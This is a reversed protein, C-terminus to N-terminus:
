WTPMANRFINKLENWHTELDYWKAYRMKPNPHNRKAENIEEVSQYIMDGFYVLGGVGVGVPGGYAAAAYISGGTGITNFAYRGVSMKGTAVKETNSAFSVVNAIPGIPKLVGNVIKLAKFPVKSYTSWQAIKIGAENYVPITTVVMSQKVTPLIINNTVDFVLAVGEWDTNHNTTTSPTTNCTEPCKSCDDCGNSDSSEDGGEGNSISSKIASFLNQADEETFLYSDETEIADAGSPDAWFVPNNDFASYPSYDFHTVPDQVVWRAIAPDYHRLDMENVNLGLDENYEKGNFKYTYPDGSEPTVPVLEILEDKAMLIEHESNYGQHKLGFPYYHDEELIALEDTEPDVTYRLRINGLHDTYNYVYNFEQQGGSPTTVKVYGEAHPFFELVEDVYQFGDLYDVERTKAGQTVVKKLKVGNADYLYDITGAGTGIVTIKKPLHLHNYTIEDISKNRDIILNGYDDYVFDNKGDLETHDNGDYFGNPDKNGGDSVNILRNGDDYEYTLNDIEQTLTADEVEGNRLLATINGNSDYALNENYSHYINAGPISYFGDLLRNLYDYSYGYSRRINDSATRWYTRAINGNYLPGVLGGNSIGVDNYRIDFAFLDVPDTGQQLDSVDNIGTLWGRINYTYDVKQLGPQGGLTVQGGVRKTSLQGLEDYSNQLLQEETGSSNIEHTQAALRDQATYSFTEVVEIPDANADYQHTTVTQLVKGSFDYKSDVTTYGDLYNNSHVRIARSKKDYLTYTTTANIDNAGELVRVWSGTPLGKPKQTTKNYYVTQSLVSTPLTGPAWGFRYDDYYNVTLLKVGATPTVNATYYVGVGDITTPSTTPTESLPPPLPDLGTPMMSPGQMWLTYVVRNFKDYKTHIYGETSGGDFPNPVPGVAIVRNLADYTISELQRGPLKKRILRNRYDYTYRYGLVDLLHQHNGVLSSGSVIQESLKPPLVFTLNGFDDYVYYTDYGISNDVDRGTTSNYHRKLVVRGLKDKFEVVTGKKGDGSEWNEDKTITKYLQNAEYKGSNGSHLALAPTGTPNNVKFYYVETDTNTQYDFKIEHGSDMRWDDGPAAQRLVRGLPSNEM